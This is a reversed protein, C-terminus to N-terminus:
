AVEPVAIMEEIAALAKAARNVERLSLYRRMDDLKAVVVRGEGMIENAFAADFFHILQTLLYGDPQSYCALWNDVTATTIALAHALQAKSLPTNPALRKRLSASIRARFADRSVGNRQERFTKGVSPLNKESM